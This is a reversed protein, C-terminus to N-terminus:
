DTRGKLEPFDIAELGAPYIEVEYEDMKDVLWEGFVRDQEISLVRERLTGKVEEFTLQKSPSREIIKFIGYNGPFLGMPMAAPESYEGVALDEILIELDPFMELQKDLLLGRAVGGNEGTARDFSRERALAAFDGGADLLGHVEIAEDMTEFSIVGLRVSGESWLQDKQEEYFGM